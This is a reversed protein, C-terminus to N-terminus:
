GNGESRASPKCGNARREDDKGDRCIERVNLEAFGTYLTLKFDTTEIRLKLIGAM